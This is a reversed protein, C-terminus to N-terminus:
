FVVGYIFVQILFETRTLVRETVGQGLGNRDLM